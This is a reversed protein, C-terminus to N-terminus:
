LGDVSSQSFDGSVYAVSHVVNSELPLDQTQSEVSKLTLHQLSLYAMPLNNSIRHWLSTLTAMFAFKVLLFLTRLITFFATSHLGSKM